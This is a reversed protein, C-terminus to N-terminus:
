REKGQYIAPLIASPAVNLRAAMDFDLDVGVQEEYRFQPGYQVYRGCM